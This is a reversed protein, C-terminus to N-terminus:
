ETIISDQTLPHTRHTIPPAAHQIGNTRSRYQSVLEGTQPDVVITHVQFARNSDGGKNMLTAAIVPKGDQVIDRMRLVTVEYESELKQRIQDKSVQASVSVTSLVFFIMALLCFTSSRVALIATHMQCELFNRTKFVIFLSM